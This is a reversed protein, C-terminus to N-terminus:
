ASSVCSEYRKNVFKEDAMDTEKMEDQIDDLQRVRLGDFVSKKKKNIERLLYRFYNVWKKRQRSSLKNQLSGSSFIEIEDKVRGGGEKELFIEVVM